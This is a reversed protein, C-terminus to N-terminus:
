RKLVNQAIEYEKEYEFGRGRGFIFSRMEEIEDDVPDPEKPPEAKTEFFKSDMLVPIDDHLIPPILKSAAYDIKHLKEVNADGSMVGPTSRLLDFIKEPPREEDITCKELQEAALCVEEEQEDEKFSKSYEEFTIYEDTYREFSKLVEELSVPPAWGENEM